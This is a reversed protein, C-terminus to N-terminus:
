SAAELILEEEINRKRKRKKRRSRCRAVKRKRKRWATTAYHVDSEAQGAVVTRYFALFAAV